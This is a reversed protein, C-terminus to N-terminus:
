NSLILITVIDSYDNQLRKLWKFYGISERASFGSFDKFDSEPLLDLHVNRKFTIQAVGVPDGRLLLKVSSGLKFLPEDEPLIHIINKNIIRNSWNQDLELCEM